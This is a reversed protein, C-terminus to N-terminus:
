AEIRHQRFIFVKAVATACILVIPVWLVDLHPVQRKGFMEMFGWVIALAMTVVTAWLFSKLLLARQFEDHLRTVLLGVIVFEACLASGSIASSVLSAVSNSARMAMQMSVVYVMLSVAIAVVCKRRFRLNAPTKIGWNM